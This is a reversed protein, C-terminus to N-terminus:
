RNYFYDSMDRIPQRFNLMYYFYDAMDWNPHRLLFNSIMDKLRRLQIEGVIERNHLIYRIIDRIHRFKDESSEAEGIDDMKERVYVIPNIFYSTKTFNNEDDHFSLKFELFEENMMDVANPRQYDMILDVIDQPFFDM